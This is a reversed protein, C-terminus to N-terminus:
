VDGGGRAFLFLSCGRSNPMPLAINQYDRVYKEMYNGYHNKEGDDDDDNFLFGQVGHVM